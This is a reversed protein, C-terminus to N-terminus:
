DDLRRVLVYQEAMLYCVLAIPFTMFGLAFAILCAM